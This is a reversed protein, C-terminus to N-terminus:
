NTSSSQRSPPSSPTLFDTKAPPKLLGEPPLPYGPCQRTEAVAPIPQPRDKAACAALMSIPLLLALLPSAPKMTM